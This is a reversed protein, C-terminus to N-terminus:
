YGEMFLVAEVERLTWEREDNITDNANLYDVILRCLNNAAFQSEWKRYGVPWNSRNARPRTGGRGPVTGLGEIIRFRDIAGFDGIYSDLISILATAVRSDYIVFSNPRAIAYLKTWASNLRSDNGPLTNDDIYELTRFVEDFLLNEDTEPLKVGGWACIDEFLRLLDTARNEIGRSNEIAQFRESFQMILPVTNEWNNGFSPWFYAQLRSSWGIAEPDPHRRRQKRFYAHYPTYAITHAVISAPSEEADYLISEGDGESDGLCDQRTSYTGNEVEIMRFTANGFRYFLPTQEANVHNGRELGDISISRNYPFTRLTTEAFTDSGVVFRGPAIQCPSSLLDDITFREYGYEAYIEDQLPM